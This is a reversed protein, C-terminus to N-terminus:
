VHPAMGGRGLTEMACHKFMRVDKSTVVEFFTFPGSVVVRTLLYLTASVILSSCTAASPVLGCNGNGEGPFSDLSDPYSAPICGGLM